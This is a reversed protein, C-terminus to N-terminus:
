DKEEGRQRPKKTDQEEFPIQDRASERTVERPHPIYAFFTNSGM